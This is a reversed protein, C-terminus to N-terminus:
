NTPDGTTPKEVPSDALRDYSTSQTSWIRNRIADCLEEVLEIVKDIYNILEADLTELKKFNPTKAQDHRNIRKDTAVLDGMTILLERAINFVTPEYFPRNLFVTKELQSHLPILKPLIDESRGTITDFSRSTKALELAEKWLEKYIEFEKEFQLKHVFLEKEDRTRMDAILTEMQTKYKARDGELTMDMQTKYLMRDKEFANGIWKKSIYWALGVVAPTTLFGSIYPTWDM